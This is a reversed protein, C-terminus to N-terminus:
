RQMAEGLLAVADVTVAQLIEAILKVSTLLASLLEGFFFSLLIVAVGAIDKELMM